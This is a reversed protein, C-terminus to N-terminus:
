EKEVKKGEQKWRTIGGDLNYLHPFSIKGLKECAGTSRMGSGCYILYTKDKDLESVKDAFDDARYDINVAGAIHGRAFEAPTRVDLIVHSKDAALKEFEAPAVKPAAPQTTPKTTPEASLFLALCLTILIAISRAFM